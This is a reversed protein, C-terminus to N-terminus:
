HYPRLSIGVSVAAAAKTIEGSDGAHLVVEFEELNDIRPRGFKIGNQKAKRIGASQRKRQIERRHAEEEELIRAVENYVDEDQLVTRLRLELQKEM